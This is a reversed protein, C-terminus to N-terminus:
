KTLEHIEELARRYLVYQNWHNKYCVVDGKKLTKIWEAFEDKSM